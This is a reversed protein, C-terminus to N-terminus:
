PRGGWEVRQWPDPRRCDMPLPPLDHDVAVMLVLGETSCAEARHLRGQIDRWLDGPRIRTAPPTSM